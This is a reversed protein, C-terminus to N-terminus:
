ARKGVEDLLQELLGADDSALRIMARILKSKDIRRGTKRRATLALQDFMAATEGDLLATYKSLKEDSVVADTDAAAVVPPAAPAQAMGQIFPNTRTEGARRKITM